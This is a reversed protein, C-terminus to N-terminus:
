KNKGGLFPYFWSFFLFIFGCFLPYLFHALRVSYKVIFIDVVPVLCNTAHVVINNLDIVSLDPRYLVSWYILSVLFAYMNSSTSLFWFWKLERTMEDGVRLRGNHHFTVLLAALVMSLMSFILNWHTLYILYFRFEGRGISTIASVSVSFVFYFAVSWRYILYKVSKEKTQWQSKLFDAPSDHEFSTNLRCSQRM